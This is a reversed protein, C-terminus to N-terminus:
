ASKFQPKYFSIWICYLLFSLLNLFPKWCSNLSPLEYANLSPLQICSRSRGAGKCGKWGIFHPGRYPRLDKWSSSEAMRCTIYYLPHGCCTQINPQIEGLVINKWERSRWRNSNVFFNLLWCLRYKIKKETNICKLTDQLMVRWTELFISSVCM